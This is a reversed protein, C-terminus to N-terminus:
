LACIAFRSTRSEDYQLWFTEVKKKQSFSRKPFKIVEAQNPVPPVDIKIYSSGNVSSSMFFSSVINRRFNIDFITDNNSNINSNSNPMITKIKFYNAQILAIYRFLYNKNNTRKRTPFFLVTTSWFLFGWKFNLPNFSLWSGLRQYRM